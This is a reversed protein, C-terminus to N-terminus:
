QRYFDDKKDNKIPGLGQSIKQKRARVTESVTPVEVEVSINPALTQNGNQL